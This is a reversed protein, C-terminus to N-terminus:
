KTPPRIALNLSKKGRMWTIGKEVHKSEGLIFFNTHVHVLLLPLSDLETQWAETPGSAVGCTLTLNQLTFLTFNALITKGQKAPAVPSHQAGIFVHFLLLIFVFNIKRSYLRNKPDNRILLPDRNRYYFKLLFCFMLWTFLSSLLWPLNKRSIM